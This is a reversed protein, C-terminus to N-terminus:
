SEGYRGEQAVVLSRRYDMGSLSIAVQRLPGREHSTQLVAQIRM